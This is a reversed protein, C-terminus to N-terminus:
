DIGKSIVELMYCMLTKGVSNPDNIDLDINCKSATKELLVNLLEFDENNITIKFSTNKSRTM